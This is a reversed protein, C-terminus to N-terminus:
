KKDSNVNNWYQTEDITLGVISDPFPPIQDFSSMMICSISLIAWSWTYPLNAISTFQCQADLLWGKGISESWSLLCMHVECAALAKKEICGYHYSQSAVHLYTSYDYLSTSSTPREVGTNAWWQVTDIHKLVPHEKQTHGM